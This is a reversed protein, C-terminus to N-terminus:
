PRGATGKRRNKSPSADKAYTGRVRKRCDRLSSKEEVPPIVGVLKKECVFNLRAGGRGKGKHCRMRGCAHGGELQFLAEGKGGGAALVCSGGTRGTRKKWWCTTRTGKQSLRVTKPVRKPQVLRGGELRSWMKQRRGHLQTGKSKGRGASGDEAQDV